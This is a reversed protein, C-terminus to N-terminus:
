IVNYQTFQQLFDVVLQAEQYQQWIEVIKVENAKLKEVNILVSFIRFKELIELHIKKEAARQWVRDIVDIKPERENIKKSSSQCSLIQCCQNM